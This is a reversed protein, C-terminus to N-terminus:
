DLVFTFAYNDINAMYGLVIKYVQTKRYAKWETPSVVVLKENFAETLVKLVQNNKPIISFMSSIGNDFKIIQSIEDRPSWIMATTGDELDVQKIEFKTGEKERIMKVADAKSYGLYYQAHLNNVNISLLLMGILNIFITKM